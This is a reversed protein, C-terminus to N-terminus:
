EPRTIDVAPGFLVAAYREVSLSIQEWPNKAPSMSSHIAGDFVVRHREDSRGYDQWLNFNHSDAFPSYQSNSAYNPNPRCGNNNGLAV